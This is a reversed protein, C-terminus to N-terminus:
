ARGGSRKLVVIIARDAGQAVPAANTGSVLKIFQNAMIRERIVATPTLHKNAAAGAMPVEAGAEDALAQYDGATKEAAKFALGAATWAAPFKFAIMDFDELDIENSLSATNLITAVKTKTSPRM